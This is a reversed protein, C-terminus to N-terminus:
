PFMYLSPLFSTYTAPSIDMKQYGWFPHTEIHHWNEINLEVKFSRGWFKPHFVWAWLIRGTQVVFYGVLLDMAALSKKGYNKWIFITTSTDKKPLFFDPALNPWQNNWTRKELTGQRKAQDTCVGLVFNRPMTLYLYSSAFLFRGLFVTLFSPKTTLFGRFSYVAM